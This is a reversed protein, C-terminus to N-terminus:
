YVLSDLPHNGNTGHVDLDFGAIDGSKELIEPTMSRLHKIDELIVGRPANVVEIRLAPAEGYRQYHFDKNRMMKSVRTTISLANIRPIRYGRFSFWRLISEITTALDTVDVVVKKDWIDECLAYWIEQTNITTM